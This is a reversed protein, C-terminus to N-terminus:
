SAEMPDHEASGLSRRLTHMADSAQSKVTGVSCSLLRATEAVSQDELYRLAIVARQRPPLARIADLLGDDREPDAYGSDPPEAWLRERRTRRWRSVNRTLMVRRVYAEPEDIRGWRPLIRELADQVLDAGAHEDGTLARGFRLLASLRATVFADFDRERRLHPPPSM